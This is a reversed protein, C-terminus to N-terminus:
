VKVLNLNTSPALAKAFNTLADGVQKNQAVDAQYINNLLSADIQMMNIGQTYLSTAIQAIQATAQLDISSLEQALASNQTPDTSQGQAAHNSIIRAKQAAVAQDVATQLGPPLTGTQLYKTMQAAQANASNALQAEQALAPDTQNGKLLNLALGGTAAALGVPNGTVQKTAGSLLSSLLSQDAPLASTAGTAAGTAQGAAGTVDLSALPDAAPTISPATGSTMTGGWGGSAGSTADFTGPSSLPMGTNPDLAPLNIGPGTMAMDTLNGTGSTLSANMPLASDAAAFNGASLGAAGAPAAMSALDLGASATGTAAGSLAGAALDPAAAEGAGFLGTLAEGFAPALDLLEPM